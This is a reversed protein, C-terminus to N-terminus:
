KSCIGRVKRQGQHGKLGLDFKVVSIVVQPVLVLLPLNVTQLVNMVYCIDSNAHWGRSPEKLGIFYYEKQNKM